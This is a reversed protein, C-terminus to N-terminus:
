VSAYGRYLAQFSDEDIPKGILSPAPLDISYNGYGSGLQPVYVGEGLRILSIPFKDLKMVLHFDKPCTIATDGCLEGLLSDLMPALRSGIEADRQPFILELYRGDENLWKGWFVEDDAPPVYQWSNQYQQYHFIREFEVTQTIGDSPEVIYSVLEALEATELDPGFTITIDRGAGGGNGYDRSWLGLPARDLILRRRLLENQLNHWSIPWNSLVTEFLDVDYSNVAQMLLVHSALVEDELRKTTRDLRMRLFGAIGLGALGAIIVLGILGLLLQRRSFTIKKPEMPFPSDEWGKEEDTRWNFDKSSM